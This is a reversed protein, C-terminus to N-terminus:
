KPPPNDAGPRKKVNSKITDNTAGPRNEVKGKTDTAGPRNEVTPKKETTAPKPKPKGGTKKMAAQMMSDARAQALTMINNMCMLKLSDRYAIVKVNAASDIQAWEKATDVKPNCSQLAFAVVLVSSIISLLKKM